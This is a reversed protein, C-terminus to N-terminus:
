FKFKWSISPIITNLKKRKVAVKVNGTEKDQEVNLFIYVPNNVMFVNYISFNIGNDKKCWYNVSLDMRNYNPMRAANYDGYEKVPASNIFYWSSPLTYANGTAYVYVVSVDWQNNLTYSSVFSLDHRRDFKAPFIRGENIGDFERESRGLTYSVWGTFRDYNKKVILELGYAKGTGNLVNETYSNIQQTIFNQSYETVHNMNRYFIEASIDFADNLFSQFYGASFEDGSQPPIKKSATTWFDTPIGISSPTLLILYQNQRSYAARLVSTENLRYRLAGRPNISNFSKDQIFLNYRLGMEATLKSTFSVNSSMYLGADHANLTSPNSTNYRQGANVMEYTQPTVQHFAYQLGTELFINKLRFLFKNKYGVDQIKSTLDIKMEAQNSSLMNRYESTYIQQSFQTEGMRTDWQASLSRNEWKLLGNLLFNNDAINFNDEGFFADIIIRNNQSLEGILTINTDYFNYDTNEVRNKANNNVTADLLPQMLLEIYTKRGSLYLGFKEGVPLQLTAQSSLLGVNGKVSVQEPLGSKTRVDIVSSLRGGYRANIGTKHLELLSIHDSNFLPFFGLLHGPTYLPVNNYLLLNQGQDGGRIYMNTNADGSNQVGPTLELLKLLDTNGMVSPLTSVASPNFSIKGSSLGGMKKKSDGTIVVEKGSVQLTSDKLPISDKLTYNEKSFLSSQFIFIITILFFIQKQFNMYKRCDFLWVNHFFEVYILNKEEFFLLFVFFLSCFIKPM